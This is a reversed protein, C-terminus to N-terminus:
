IGKLNLTDAIELIDSILRGTESICKYQVYATQQYTILSPFVKKLRAM